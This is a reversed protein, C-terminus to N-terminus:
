SQELLESRMRLYYPLLSLARVVNFLLLAAWLGHNGFQETLLWTFLLYCIISFIMANRMEATRTAGIFIGDLQYSWVSLIPAVVLWPLYTAAHRRVEDIDTMLAVFVDGLVSYTIVYVISVLLAWQSTVRAAQRFAGPKRAGIASGVLAEAAHAFGDLGYAVVHLLHLLVANAALTLEGFEASQATFLFFALLLCLTRILINMNTSLMSKMSRASLMGWGGFRGSVGALHRMVLAIGVIAASYEAILTAIAVGVVGMGMGAVFLLDLAVNTINLFLQTILVARTNQMGILSGLIAYNLLTAPAAWIRVDFYSKAHQELNMGSDVALFAISGIPVQLLILAFGLLLALVAARAAVARVEDGDGAGWAQAILGTTGMRLFGFGWFVVNFIIAGLAVAGIYVPDPLHGVVATDVIGVLPVSMNSLIIPGALRWARTHWERNSEPLQQLTSM